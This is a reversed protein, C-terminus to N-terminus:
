KLSWCFCSGKRSAIHLAMNGRDNGLDGDVGKELLFKILGPKPQFVALHLCTNGATTINVDVGKDLCDDIKKSIQMKLLM